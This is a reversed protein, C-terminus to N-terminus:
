VIKKNVNLSMHNINGPNIFNQYAFKKNKEVAPTLGINCGSPNDFVTMSSLVFIAMGV